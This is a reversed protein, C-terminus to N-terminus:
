TVIRGPNASGAAVRREYAAEITDGRALRHRLAATVCIGPIGEIIRRIIAEGSDGGDRFVM